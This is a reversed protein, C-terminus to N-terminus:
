GQCKEELAKVRQELTLEEPIIDAWVGDKMICNGTFWLQRGGERVEYISSALCTYILGSKASRVKVCPIYGKKTAYASLISLIEEDTALRNTNIPHDKSSFWCGSSDIGYRSGDEKYFMIWNSSSSTVYWRELPKDEKFAKPWLSHLRKSLKVDVDSGRLLEYDIEKLLQKREKNM